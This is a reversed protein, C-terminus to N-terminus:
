PHKMRNPGGPMAEAMSGFGGLAIEEIAGLDELRPSSYTSRPANQGRSPLSVKSDM